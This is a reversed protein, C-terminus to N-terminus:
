KRNKESRRRMVSVEDKQTNGILPHVAYRIADIYHNFMDVPVGSKKDHWVYNNFETGIETSDPDVIITYGQLAKIGANVSGPGKVAFAMNIGKAAVETILRKEQSDATILGKPGAYYLNAEYIAQTSMNPKGFCAKVYVIKRKNDVACKVLTTPDVSFGFDQGFTFPLDDNFAGYRWNDFIVGEAVDLWGGLVVHKYYLARKIIRKDLKDRMDKPTDEYIEYAVRKSEFDDWINDPIFKREMDLYTSHIFLVNDVIGNFGEAVGMAEFFEEYIWHVKSAPNLLMISLNRVDTARISKRIKDWDSFNPMEEAEELVFVSFDKLSKLAATQNGASTKIGKFVVKARSKEDVPLIRDKTINFDNYCNLMDMKEQFEPIISDEASKLTYRTYLIRHNYDKAALCAWTGVAFSKQSNRGGTIIVTDVKSLAEGKEANFWEFLPEYVESILMENQEVDAVM